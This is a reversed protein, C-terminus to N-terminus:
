LVRVEPVLTIGIETQARDSIKKVFGLVDDATAGHHAVIVLAQERWAEVLGEQYGKLRLVHEFFWGVPVKIGGEPLVFLPMAPYADHLRAAEAKDVVINLFFSGATGYADLPPFKKSRIDQVAARIDTLSPIDRSQFYLALDKYTIQPTTDRAMRLEANLIIYRDLSSKFISSRYGFACSTNDFEVVKKSLTDFARVRVVTQSLATGYAGINQVIAGGVTGPIASLNEIGWLNKEVAYEVVDDWTAGADAVIHSNKRLETSNMGVRVVVVDHRTDRALINSGGGLVVHPLKAADTFALADSTDKLSEITVRYAAPGGVKFTSNAAISVHEEVLM